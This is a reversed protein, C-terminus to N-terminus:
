ARSTRALRPSGVSEKMGPSSPNAAHLDTHCVGCAETKVVIEGPGPTPMAMERIILPQGLKEVVAAQMSNKMFRGEARHTGDVKL